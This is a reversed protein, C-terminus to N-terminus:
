TWAAANAQLAGSVRMWRLRSPQPKTSALENITNFSKNMKHGFYHIFILEFNVSSTQMNAIFKYYRTIMDLEICFPIRSDLNICISGNRWILVSTIQCPKHMYTRKEVRKVSNSISAFCVASQPVADLPYRHDVPITLGTRIVGNSVMSIQGLCFMWIPTFRWFSCKYSNQTTYEFSSQSTTMHVRKALTQLRPQVLMTLSRCRVLENKYHHLLPSSLSCKIERDRRM